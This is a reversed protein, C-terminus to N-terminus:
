FLICVIQVHQIKVKSGALFAMGLHHVPLFHCMRIATILPFQTPPFQSIFHSLTFFEWSVRMSQYVPLSHGRFQMVTIEAQHRNFMRNWLDLPRDLPHQVIIYSLWSLLWSLQTGTGTSNSNWPSWVSNYVLHPLSLWVRGLPGEPVGISNPSWLLQQYSATFFALVWCLPVGPGGTSCWFFSFSVFYQLKQETELVKECAFRSYGKRVSAIFHSTFIKNFFDEQMKIMADTHIWYIYTYKQMFWCIVICCVSSYPKLYGITIIDTIRLLHNFLEIQGISPVRVPVVIWPWLSGSLLPSSPICWRWLVWWWFRNLTMDLVFFNTQM